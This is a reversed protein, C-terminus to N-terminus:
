TEKSQSCSIVRGTFGNAEGFDEAIVRQPSGVNVTMGYSTSDVVDSIVEGSQVFM